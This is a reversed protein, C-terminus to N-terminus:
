DVRLDPAPMARPDALRLAPLAHASSNAQADNGVKRWAQSGSCGSGHM